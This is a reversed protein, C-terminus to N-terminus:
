FDHGDKIEMQTVSAGSALAPTIKLKTPVPRGSLLARVENTQRHVLAFDNLLVPELRYTSHMCHAGWRALKKMYRKGYRRVTKKGGRSGAIARKQSIPLTPDIKGHRM